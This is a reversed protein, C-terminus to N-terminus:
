EKRPKRGSRKQAKGAEAPSPSEKPTAVDQLSGGEVSRGEKEAQSQEAAMKAEYTAFTEPPIWGVMQLSLAHPLGKRRLWQHVKEIRDKKARVDKGDPLVCLQEIFDRLYAAHYQARRLDRAIPLSEVDNAAFVRFFEADPTDKEDANPFRANVAAIGVRLAEILVKSRSLGKWESVKTVDSQLEADVPVVESLGGSRIAQLGSRIAERMVWSRSVGRAEAVEDILRLMDDDM